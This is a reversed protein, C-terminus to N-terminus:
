EIKWTYEMDWGSKTEITQNFYFVREPQLLKSFNGTDWKGNQNDDCILKFIYTSPALNNIILKTDSNVSFEQLVKEKSDLLQVISNASPVDVLNILISSYYDNNLIEFDVSLTDNINSYIDTLAGSPLLLKYKASEVRKFNINFKRLSGEIRSISFNVPLEKDEDEIKKLSILSEDYSKIPYNCTLVIPKVIDFPSDITHSLKLESEKKEVKKKDDDKKLRSLIGSEKKKQPKSTSKSIFEVTDLKLYDANNSDKMTYCVQMKLTDYKYLNSDAIWILVSDTPLPSEMLYWDDSYASDTIPKISFTSDILDNFAVAIFRKNPRYVERLYQMHNEETFMNLNVDDITTVMATYQYISDHFITDKKDRSIKEIMRITDYMIVPKFGPRITSDCFAISENPLDFLNNNNMDRLAFVYYNVDAKMNPVIFFGDKNTRGICDPKRTRPTSDNFQRYLMVSIGSLPLKTFADTVIGGIYTSDFTDGTSFEFQFNELVNNENLDTISNFFNFNYTTSDTLDNNIRVIMKKGRMVAKPKNAVPPSVLLEQNVNKLDIFEDFEVIFKKGKFNTSYNVPSSRLPV